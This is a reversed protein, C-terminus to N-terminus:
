WVTEVKLGVGKTFRVIGDPDTQRLEVSKIFADPESANGLALIWHPEEGAPWNTPYWWVQIGYDLDDAVNPSTKSTM